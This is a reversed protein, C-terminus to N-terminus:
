VGFVLGGGAVQALDSQLVSGGGIRRGGRLEALKRILLRLIFGGVSEAAANQKAERALVFLHRAPGLNKEPKPMRNAYRRSLSYRSALRAFSEFPCFLPLLCPHLHFFTYPQIRIRWLPVVTERAYISM